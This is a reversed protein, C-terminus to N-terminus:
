VSRAHDVESLSSRRVACMIRSISLCPITTLWQALNTWRSALQSRRRIAASMASIPALLHKNVNSKFQQSPSQPHLCRWEHNGLGLWIAIYISTHKFLYTVKGKIVWEPLFAVWARSITIYRYLQVKYCWTSNEYWDVFLQPRSVCWWVMCNGNRMNVTNAIGNM